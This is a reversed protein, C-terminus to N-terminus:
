ISYISIILKFIYFFINNEELVEVEEEIEQIVQIDEEIKWEIILDVEVEEVEVEVLVEEIDAVTIYM